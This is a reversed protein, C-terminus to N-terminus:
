KSYYGKSFGRMEVAHGSDIMLRGLDRGDPLYCRAVTRRYKDTHMIECTILKGTTLRILHHKAAYFGAEGDEPTNIGWLRVQTRHEAIYLSDGDVVHRVKGTLKLREFPAIRSPSNIIFIIAVFFLLVTINLLNMAEIM